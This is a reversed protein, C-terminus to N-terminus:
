PDYDINNNRLMSYLFYRDNFHTNVLAQMM